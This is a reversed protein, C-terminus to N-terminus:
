ADAKCHEPQRNAMKLGYDVGRLFELFGAQKEPPIRKTLDFLNAADPKADQPLTMETRVEYEM